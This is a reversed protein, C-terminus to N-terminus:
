VFVERPLNEKKYSEWFGRAKEILVSNGPWIKLGDLTIGGKRRYFNPFVIKYYPYSFDENKFAHYISYAILDALQIGNSLESRAFFPYEVVHNFRMNQNGFRQFYAHKMAVAQNLAKSTDDMVILANHKPRNEAMYHEIRELLLEYAKKHLTEHTTHSHLHRKDIVVAM